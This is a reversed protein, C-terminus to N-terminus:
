KLFVKFIKYRSPGTDDDDDDITTVEVEKEKLKKEGSPSVVKEKQPVKDKQTSEKLFVKKEKRTPPYYVTELGPPDDQILWIILSLLSYCM